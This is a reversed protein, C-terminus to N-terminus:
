LTQPNWQSPTVRRGCVHWDKIVAAVLPSLITTESGGAVRAGIDLTSASQRRGPCAAPGRSTM